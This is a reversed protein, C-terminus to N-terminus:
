ASSSSVIGFALGLHWVDSSKRKITFFPGFIFKVLESTQSKELSVGQTYMNSM